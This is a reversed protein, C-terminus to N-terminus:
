GYEQLCVLLQVWLAEHYKSSILPRSVIEKSEFGKTLFKKLGFLLSRESRTWLGHGFLDEIWRLMDCFWM